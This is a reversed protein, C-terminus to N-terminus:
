RADQKKADELVEELLEYEEQEIERGCNSDLFWTPECGDDDYVLEINLHKKLIEFARKYKALKDELDNARHVAEHESHLAGTYLELKAKLLENEQELQEKRDLDRKVQNYRKINNKAHKIFYDDAQCSILRQVHQKFYHIKTDIFGLSTMKKPM